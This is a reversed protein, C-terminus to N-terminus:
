PTARPPCPLSCQVISETFNPFKHSELQPMKQDDQREQDGTRHDEENGARSTPAAGPVGIVTRPLARGASAGRWM